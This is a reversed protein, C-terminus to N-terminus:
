YLRKGVFEALSMLDRKAQTEKLPRLAKVGENIFKQGLRYTKEKADTQSILRMGAEVDQPTLKDKRLLSLLPERRKLSLGELTYLIVANGLKHELIDKGRIKGTREGFIDLYDDIVQFALGVKRGYLKLARRVNPPSDSAICGVECAAELLAATKKGIMILYDDIAAQKFRHKLIYPNTRGAQEFLIDLREGEIIEKITNIITERIQSPNKSREILTDLVERYFMAALLAMADSFKARVTPLGRRLEGHDIVDDLILSYNHTFEVTAAPYLVNRTKGGSALCSLIALAARVRKGGTFLQHKLIPQFLPSAGESLHKYIVADVQRGIKLIEDIRRM